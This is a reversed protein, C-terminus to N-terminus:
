SVIDMIQELNNITYDPIVKALLPEERRLRLSRADGAFLATRIGLKQAPYIDKLMDNGVFLIENNKLGYSSAGELLKEFLLTSPKSIRERYSYISMEPEFGSIEGDKGVEKGLFFNMIMPTYFQANSVIGLPISRRRLSHIIEAMFPMPYVPNSLLEFHLALSDVEEISGKNILKEAHLSCLLQKWVERINIEPHENNEARAKNKLEKITEKYRGIIYEASQAPDNSLIDIGCQAFSNMVCSTSLKLKDIDGSASILLTGYVDFVVCKINKDRALRPPVGTSLPTLPKQSDFL